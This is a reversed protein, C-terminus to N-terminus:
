SGTLQKLRKIKDELEKVLDPTPEQRESIITPEGSALAQKDYITGLAVAIDRINTMQLGTLRSTLAKKQAQTLEGDQVVDILEEIAEEDELAKTFRKNTLALAKKVVEWAESIFEAKKAQRVQEFDDTDMVDRKIYHVTSRPLNTERAIDTDSADPNLYLLAKVQEKKAESTPKGRAM